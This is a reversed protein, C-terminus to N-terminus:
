EREGRAAVAMLLVGVLSCAAPVVWTLPGPSVPRVANLMLATVSAVAITWGAARQGARQAPALSRRLTLLASRSRSGRWDEDIRSVLRRATTCLRSSRALYTIDRDCGAADGPPETLADIARRTFVWWGAIPNEHSSM